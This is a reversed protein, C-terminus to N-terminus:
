TAFDDCLLSQPASNTILGYPDAFLHGGSRRGPRIAASIEDPDPQTCSPLASTYNMSPVWLEYCRSELSIM